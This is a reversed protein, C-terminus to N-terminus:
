NYLYDIINNVDRIHYSQGQYPNGDAGALILLYSRGRWSYLVMINEGAEGTFGTKGGLAGEYYWEEHPQIMQNHNYWYRIEDVMNTEPCNFYKAGAYRRFDPYRLAEQTILAMDRACVYHDENHLGHANKFNTNVCGLEKAKATMMEAFASQSGGVKEAIGNAIDNASELMLGYLAKDMSMVEGVQIGAHSSGEELNYVANESFTIESELDGHEVALLTTMIKTISAPYEKADMNKSYLFTGTEADMVVAAEAEITPGVPWGETYNSEIPLYYSDPYPNENEEESNNETAHVSTVGSVTGFFLAATLLSLLWLKRKKM